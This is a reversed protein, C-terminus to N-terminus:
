CWGPSPPGATGTPTASAVSGGAQANRPRGGGSGMGDYAALLMEPAAQVMESSEAVVPVTLGLLLALGAVVRTTRM